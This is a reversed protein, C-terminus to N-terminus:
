FYDAFSNGTLNTFNSMQTRIVNINKFEELIQQANQDEAEMLAFIGLSQLIESGFVLELFEVHHKTLLLYDNNIPQTLNLFIVVKDFCRQALVQTSSIVDWADRIQPLEILTLCSDDNLYGNITIM